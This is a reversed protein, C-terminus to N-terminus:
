ERPPREQNKADLGVAAEFSEGLMFFLQIAHIDRLTRRCFIHAQDDVIFGAEAAIDHSTLVGIQNRRSIGMLMKRGDFLHEQAEDARMPRLIFRNLGHLAQDSSQHLFLSAKDLGHLFSLCRFGQPIDLLAAALGEHLDNALM